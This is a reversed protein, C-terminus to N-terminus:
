RNLREFAGGDARNRAVFRAAIEANIGQQTTKIRHDSGPSVTPELERM